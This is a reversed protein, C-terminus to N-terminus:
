FFYILKQYAIWTREGIKEIVSLVLHNIHLHGKNNLFYISKGTYSVYPLKKM